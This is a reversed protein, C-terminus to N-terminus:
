DLEQADRGESRKLDKDQQASEMKNKEVWRREFVESGEGSECSKYQQLRQCAPVVQALNV